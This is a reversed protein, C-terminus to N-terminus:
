RMYKTNSLINYFMSAPIDVAIDAIRIFTERSVADGNGSLTM